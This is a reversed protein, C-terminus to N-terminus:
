FILSLVFATFGALGGIGLSEIPKNFLKTQTIKNYIIKLLSFCVGIFLGGFLGKPLILLIVFIIIFEIIRKNLLVKNKM